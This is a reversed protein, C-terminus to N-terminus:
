GPPAEAPSVLYSDEPAKRSTDAWGSHDWHSLNIRKGAVTVQDANRFSRGVVVSPHRQEPADPRM